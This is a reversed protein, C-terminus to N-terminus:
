PQAAAPVVWVVGLMGASAHVTCLFPFTGAVPFVISAPGAETDPIPNPGMGGSRPALPHEGNADITVVTGATVRLCEPEYREGSITVTTGDV